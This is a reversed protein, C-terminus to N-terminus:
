ERVAGPDIPLYSEPVGQQGEGTVTGSVNLGHACGRSYTHPIDRGESLNSGVPAQTGFGLVDDKSDYLQAIEFCLEFVTSQIYSLSLM